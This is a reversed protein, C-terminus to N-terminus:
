RIGGRVGINIGSNPDFRNGLFSNTRSQTSQAANQPKIFGVFRKAFDDSALQSPITYNFKRAMAAATAAAEARSYRDKAPNTARQVFAKFVKQRRPDTMRSINPRSIYDNAASLATLTLQNDSLEQDAAETTDPVEETGMNAFMADIASQQAAAAQQAARQAAERDLETQKIQQALLGKEKELDALAAALTNRAEQGKGRVEARAPLFREGVYRAQEEIPLGGFVVGRRNAQRTIDRFANEKQTDLAALQTNIQPDIQKRQQNIVKRSPAFFADLERLIQDTSRAM